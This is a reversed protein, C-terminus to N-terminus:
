VSNIISKLIVVNVYCYEFIKNNFLNNNLLKKNRKAKMREQIVNKVM